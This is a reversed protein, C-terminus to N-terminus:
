QEMMRRLYTGVIHAFSSISRTYTFEKGFIKKEAYLDEESGVFIGLVAIGRNRAKRVELATDKIAEEGVYPAPKRSGPRNGAGLHNPKGDSLVILIKNEEPRAELGECITRIALGDRNEGFARFQLINKNQSAPDDYDRFRHIATYDWYSCFSCVRAPIGAISLAQAIIYAQAAVQPQRLNQSGSSDLLIDVVFSASDRKRRVDFLKEDRTRGVKWLRAPVIQGFGSRVSDEDLWQIQVQRLMAGLVTISRRIATQKMTFYTENKLAQMQTRLFQTNKVAPNTLIGETLHLSCRAHLGTCLRRKMQETELPPLYTKGFQREVYARVKELDEPSPEPIEEEPSQVQVRPQAPPRTDPTRLLEEKVVSLYAEMVADMTEDSVAMDRSYEAIERHTVALVRKLDGRAAAFDPDVLANYVADATRIVDETTRADKLAEIACVWPALEPDEPGPEGLFRVMLAKRLRGTISRFYGTDLLDRFADRRLEYIGSREVAAKPYAAADLCLQAIDRLLAEDAGLTRKKLTYLALAEPDFYRSFAGQRVADYLALPKSRLFAETDPKFDLSYDGSVTWFLNRIRNEIEMRHDEAQAAAELMELRRKRKRESSTMKRGAEPFGPQRPM